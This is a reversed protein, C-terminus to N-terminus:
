KSDHAHKNRKSKSHKERDKGDYGNNRSEEIYAAVDEPTYRIAHKGIKTVRPGMGDQRWHALIDTSVSLMKAVEDTILLLKEM